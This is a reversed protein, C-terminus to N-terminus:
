SPLDRRFATQRDTRLPRVCVVGAAQSHAALWRIHPKRIHPKRVVTDTPAAVGGGPPRFPCVLRAEETVKLAEQAQQLQREVDHVARCSQPDTGFDCPNGEVLREFAARPVCWLTAREAAAVNAACPQRLLMEQWGFVGGAGVEGRVM